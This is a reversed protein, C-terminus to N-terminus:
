SLRIEIKEIHTQMYELIAKAFLAIGFMELFEECTYILAYGANKYGVAESRLGSFIEFGIAGTVFVVGSLIFANRTEKPLRALFPLYMMSGIVLLLAYPIIWAHRLIGSTGFYARLPLDLRDHLQLCEDLGLYFFVLALGYWHYKNEGKGKSLGVWFLLIACFFIAMTSYLTPLNQETNLDFFKILGFVVDHHLVYKSFIGLLNASVLVFIMLCLVNFTQKPTIRIVMNFVKYTMSIFPFYLPIQNSKSYPRQRILKPVKYTSNALLYISCIKVGSITTLGQLPEAAHPNNRLRLRRHLFSTV